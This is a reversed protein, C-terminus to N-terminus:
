RVGAEADHRFWISVHNSMRERWAMRRPLKSLTRATLVTISRNV